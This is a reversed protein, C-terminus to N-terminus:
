KIWKNRGKLSQTLDLPHIDMMRIKMNKMAAFAENKFRRVIYEQINHKYQIVQNAIHKYLFDEALKNVKLEDENLDSFGDTIYELVVTRAKVSSSFRIYGSNKDINYKGNVNSSSTDLGYRGGFFEDAKNLYDNADGDQDNIGALRTDVISTGKIANGDNDFIIDYEDDQLYADVVRTNKDSIMPRLRGREDVWSAKILRVFDKPLEIQLDDSLELEIARVNNLADYHLEQLARKAHFVVDYRSIDNIIKDDGVYFAYFNNIIDSLKVFQYSGWNSSNEYYQKDTLAM